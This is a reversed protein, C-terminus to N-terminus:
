IGGISMWALVWWVVFGALLWIPVLLIHSWLHTRRGQFKHARWLWILRIWAIPILIFLACASPFFLLRPIRAFRDMYRYWAYSCLFIGFLTYSLKSLM